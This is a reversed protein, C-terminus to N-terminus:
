PNASYTIRSRCLRGSVWEEVSTMAQFKPVIEWIGARLGFDDGLGSGMDLVRM